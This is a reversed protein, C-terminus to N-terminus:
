GGGGGRGTRGGQPCLCVEYVLVCVCVCVCVVLCGPPLSSRMEHEEDSWMVAVSEDSDSDESVVDRDEHSEGAAATKRQKKRLKKAKSPDVHSLRLSFEVKKTVYDVRLTTLSSATFETIYVVFWLM